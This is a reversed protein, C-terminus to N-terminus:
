EGKAAALAARAKMAYEHLQKAIAELEEPSIYGGTVIQSGAADMVAQCDELAEVLAAHSNCALAVFDRTADAAREAGEQERERLDRIHDGLEEIELLGWAQPSESGVFHHITYPTPTHDTKSMTKDGTETRSSGM